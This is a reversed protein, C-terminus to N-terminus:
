PFWSEMVTGYQALHDKMAASQYHPHTENQLLAPTITAANVLRDFDEPTYYNSLGISRLKGESVAQEQRDQAIRDNYEEPYVTTTEMHFLDGGTQEAIMGAIVETNGTHSFYAM